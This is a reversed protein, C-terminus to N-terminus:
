EFYFIWNIKQIGEELFAWKTSRIQGTLIKKKTRRIKIVPNRQIKWNSRVSGKIFGHYTKLKLESQHMKPKIQSRNMIARISIMYEHSIQIMFSISTMRGWCESPRWWTLLFTWIQKLARMKRKTWIQLNKKRLFIQTMILSNLFKLFELKNTNM